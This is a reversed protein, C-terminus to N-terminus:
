SGQVIRVNRPASPGGVAAAGPVPRVLLSRVDGADILGVFNRIYAVLDRNDLRFYDDSSTNFEAWFKAISNPTPGTPRVSIPINMLVQVPEQSEDAM